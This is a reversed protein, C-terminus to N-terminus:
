PRSTLRFHKFFSNDLQRDTEGNTSMEREHIIFNHLLMAAQIVLGVRKASFNLRRWFIGWRMVLEGFSCEIFIRSSSHYFNFADEMSKPGANDHPTLLFIMLAYASDGALYLGERQLEAAFKDLLDYLKTEMFARSDHTGGKHGTSCWLFRKKQDCIAQVNLAYFGKQCYYNGPDPVESTSFCKVRLALGDIAGFCGNYVGDTRKGFDAAIEHLKSWDQLEIIRRLPFTFSKLIWKVTEHFVNFVSRESVFFMGVMDLYCGGALLRLLIALKLEGVLMGGVHQMGKAPVSNLFEQNRSDQFFTIESRFTFKGVSAEVHSCLHQFSLPPMRFMKRFVKDSLRTSFVEWTPRLQRMPLCRNLRRQQQVHLSLLSKAMEACANMELLLVQFLSQLLLLEALDFDDDDDEESDSM